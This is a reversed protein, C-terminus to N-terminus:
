TREGADPGVQPVSRAALLERAARADVTDFGETFRDYVARLDEIAASDSGFRRAVRVASMAVRLELGRAERRRVSEFARGLRAQAEAFEGVEALAEATLRDIETQLMNALKVSITEATRLEALADRVEGGALRWKALELSAMVVSALGAQDRVLKLLSVGADTEGKAMLMAGLLFQAHPRYVSFRFDELLATARRLVPEIEPLESRWWYVSAASQMVNLFTPANLTEADSLVTRAHALAQGPFGKIWLLASYTGRCHSLASLALQGLNEAALTEFIRLADEAEVVGRSPLSGRLLCRALNTKAIVFLEADVVPDILDLAAEAMRLGLDTKGHDFLFGSIEVSLEIHSRKDGLERALELSRDTAGQDDQLLQLASLARVGQLVLELGGGRGSDPLRELAVGSWERAEHARLLPTLVLHAREALALGLGLDGEPGFCWTLAARLDPVLRRHAALQTDAPDPWFTQPIDALYSLVYDAHGRALTGAEGLAEAKERVFSRTMDLLRYSPGVSDLFVQVLSKAVLAPLLEIVEADSVAGGVARAAALDFSAAFASLARLLAQERSDLLGYSWELTAALSMQRNPATRRGKWYLTANQDLLKALAQMGFADVRAGALGLALAVGDLKRCIEAAAPADEDRLAFDNCSAAAAECLLQVAPYQIAEAATLDPRAAPYELPPLSIIQEGLVNLAERSTCLIQCDEAGARLQEALGSVDDILHECCDLIVLSPQDDLLLLLDSLPDAGGLSLQSAIHALLLEGRAVAGLDFFFVRVGLEKRLWHGVAIAVTTKGMGGPGVVTALRHAGLAQSVRKVSPDRGAMWRLPPLVAHGRVEDARRRRRQVPAALCYGRGPITKIYGGGDQDDGLAKRLESMQVRLAAEVVVVDPWVRRTLDEKTVVEGPQELLVKLLDFARGGLAVPVGGRSVQRQSTLVQFSGFFIEDDL